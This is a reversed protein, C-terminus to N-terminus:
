IVRYTAVGNVEQVASGLRKKSKSGDKREVDVTEGTHGSPGRILWANETTSKAWTFTTIAPPVSPTPPLVETPIPKNQGSLISDISLSDNGTFFPCDGVDL